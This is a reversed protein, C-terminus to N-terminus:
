CNLLSWQQNLNDILKKGTYKEEQSQLKKLSNDVKSIQTNIKHYRDAEEELSDMKNPEKTSGGGGGSGGGGSSRPSSSGGSNRSSYNNSSGTAKQTLSNIAPVVTVGPESTELSYADVEGEYEKGKQVETQTIEDYLEAYAGNAFEKRGKSVVLHHTTVTDPERVKVKQPKSAFNATFGMGSLMTNVQDKTMGADLIMKNMFDLMSEEGVSLGTLDVNTGWEFPNEDLVAQIQQVRNWLEDNNIVADTDLEIGLVIPELSKDRLLDIAEADGEAAQAILEANEAFFEGNLSKEADETLDLLDGMADRMNNLADFYEESSADSDNLIDLWEEQKAALKEIGKNMRMISKAVVTAANADENMSDALNENKDAWEETKDAIDMLHKSYDALEEKKIEQKELTDEQDSLINEIKEEKTLQPTKLDNLYKQLEEPAM